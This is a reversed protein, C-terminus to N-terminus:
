ASVVIVAVLIKPHFILASEVLIIVLIWSVFGVCIRNRSFNLM